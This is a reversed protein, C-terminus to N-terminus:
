PASTLRIDLAQSRGRDLRLVREESTYGEKSVRIRKDGPPMHHIAIPTVGWGIGNVTVRAGAPQTTVVLETVSSAPAPTETGTTGQVGVEPAVAPQAVAGSQPTAPSASSAPEAPAAPSVAGSGVVAPIQLTAPRSIARGYAAVALAVVAFAILAYTRSRASTRTDPIERWPDRADVPRMAVRLVEQDLGVARAYARIEARQYFGASSATLDAHELAELHRQPIRTERAIRELTLGRNERTSRLLEGLNTSRYIQSDTTSTRVDGSGASTVTAMAEIGEVFEPSEARVHCNGNWRSRKISRSIKAPFGSPSGFWGAALRQLRESLLRYTEPRGSLM